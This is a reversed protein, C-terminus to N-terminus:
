IKDHNDDKKSIIFARNGRNTKEIIFKVEFGNKVDRRNGIFDNIRFYISDNNYKIFGDRGSKLINSIVGTYTTEKEYMLKLIENKFNRINGDAEEKYKYKLDRNIPYMKKAREIFAIKFASDALEITDYRELLLGLNYYANVKADDKGFSLISKIYNILAKDYEENLFLKEAYKAYLWWEKLLLLVEDYIKFSEDKENLLFHADAQDLKLHLHNNHHFNKIEDLAKNSYNIADQYRELSILFRVITRYYLEKNSQYTNENYVNPELSFLKENELLISTIKENFIIDERPKIFKLVDYLFKNFDKHDLYLDRLLNIQDELLQVNFRRLTLKSIYRMIVSKLADQINEDLQLYEERSLLSIMDNTSYKFNSLNTLSQFYYFLSWYYNLSHDIDKEVEFLQVVEGYKKNGYALKIKESLDVM